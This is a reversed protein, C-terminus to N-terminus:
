FGEEGFVGDADEEASVSLGLGFARV